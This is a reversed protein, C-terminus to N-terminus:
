RASVAAEALFARCLRRGHQQWAELKDDLQAAIEASSRPSTDDEFWTLV